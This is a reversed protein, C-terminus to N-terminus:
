DKIFPQESHVFQLNYENQGIGEKAMNVGMVGWLPDVGSNFTGFGGEGRYPDQVYESELVELNVPIFVMLKIRNLFRHNLCGLQQVVLLEVHAPSKDCM